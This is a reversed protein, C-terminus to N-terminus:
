MGHYQVHVCMSIKDVHTNLLCSLNKENDNERRSSIICLHFFKGMHWMLRDVCTCVSVKRQYHQMIIIIQHSSAWNVPCVVVERGWYMVALHPQLKCPKKKRLLCKKFSILCVLYFHCVSYMIYQLSSRSESKTNHCLSVVTCIYVSQILEIRIIFKM